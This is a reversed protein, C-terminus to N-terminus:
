SPMRRLDPPLNVLPRKTQEESFREFSRFGSNGYQLKVAYVVAGNGVSYAHEFPFDNRDVMRLRILLSDLERGQLEELADILSMTYRERLIVFRSLAVPKGLWQWKSLNRDIYITLDVCGHGGLNPVDYTRSDIEYDRRMYRDVQPLRTIDNIEEVSFPFLKM